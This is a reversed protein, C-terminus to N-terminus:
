TPVGNWLGMYRKQANKIDEYDERYKDVLECRLLMMEAKQLADVATYLQELIMDAALNKARNGLETKLSELQIFQEQIDKPTM